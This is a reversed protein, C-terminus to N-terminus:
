LFHFFSQQALILLSKQHSYFCTRNDYTHDSRTGCPCKMGNKFFGSPPLYDIYNGDDDIIPNYIDSEVVLEM